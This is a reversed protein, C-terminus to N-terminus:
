KVARGRGHVERPESCTPLASTELSHSEMIITPVVSRKEHLQNRGATTSSNTACTSKDGNVTDQLLQLFLLYNVDKAGNVTNPMLPHLQHLSQYTPVSTALQLHQM